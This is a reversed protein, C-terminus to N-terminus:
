CRPRPVGPVLAGVERQYRRYEDGFTEVLLAEEHRIRRAFALPLAVAAVAAALYAHLYLPAAAYTLLAGTYSPHRAFRYPGHRIVRQGEQVAVHWTFFRGLVAVAWSRLALGAAMAVLAAAAVADVSFADARLYIAELVAGLQTLYVTWVIQRATGRDRASPAAGLPNYAPQLVSAFIGLAVLVWLHPRRLIEPRGLAPLIAIGASVAAGLAAKKLVAAAGTM